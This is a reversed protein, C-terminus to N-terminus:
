RLVKAFKQALKEEVEDKNGVHSNYLGSQQSMAHFLEHSFTEKFQPNTIFKDKEKTRIENFIYIANAMRQHYGWIPIVSGNQYSKSRFYFRFDSDNLSRYNSDKPLISISQLLPSNLKFKIFTKKYNNIAKNCIENLISITEINNPSSAEPKWEIISVKSCKEKLYIPQSLKEKELPNMPGQTPIALSLNAVINTLLKLM